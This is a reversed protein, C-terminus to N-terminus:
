KSLAANQYSIIIHCPAFLLSAATLPISRLLAGSLLFMASPLISLALARFISNKRFCVAWILCYLLALVSNCILYLVFAEDSCFGFWTYPINFIMLAFCGFRGIQELVEVPKNHWANVFGNEKYRLAFVINPIMIVAMFGLGYLNVWEM